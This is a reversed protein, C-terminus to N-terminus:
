NVQTDDVLMKNVSKELLGLIIFRSGDVSMEPQDKRFSVTIEVEKTIIEYVFNVYWEILEPRKKSRLFMVWSDYTLTVSEIRNYGALHANFRTVIFTEARHHGIIKMKSLLWPGIRDFITALTFRADTHEVHVVPKVLEIFGKMSPLLQRPVGDLMRHPRDIVATQTETLHSKWPMSLTALDYFRMARTMTRQYSDDMLLKLERGTGFGDKPYTGLTILEVLLTASAGDTTAVKLAAGEVGAEIANTANFIYKLLGAEGTKISLEQTTPRLTQLGNHVSESFDSRVQGVQEVGPAYTIYPPLAGPGVNRHTAIMSLTVGTATFVEEGTLRDVVSLELTDCKGNVLARQFENEFDFLKSLKLYRRHLPDISETAWSERSLRERRASEIKDMDAYGEMTTAAVPRFGLQLSFGPVVFMESQQVGDPSNLRLVATPLACLLGLRRYIALMKPGEVEIAMENLFPWNAVDDPLPDNLYPYREITKVELRSVSDRYGGERAAWRSADVGLLVDDGSSKVVGNKGIAIPEQFRIPPLKATWDRTLALLSPNVIERNILQRQQEYFRGM